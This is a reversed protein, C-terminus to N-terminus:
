TPDNRHYPRAFLLTLAPLGNATEKGIIGERAFPQMCHDKEVVGAHVANYKFEITNGYKSIFGNGWRM